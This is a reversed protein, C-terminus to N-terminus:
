ITMVASDYDTIRPEIGLDEVMRRYNLRTSRSTTIRKTLPEFGKRRGLTHLGVASAVTESATLHTNLDRWVWWKM